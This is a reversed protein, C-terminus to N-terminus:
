FAVRAGLRILRPSQWATDKGYRPNPPNTFPPSQDGARSNNYVQNRNTATQVNTVNFVDLIPLVIVAGLRIPYELHLDVSYTSPMEDSSGRPVLFRRYGPRAFGYISLPRGTSFFSNLGVQLGFPLVYSGSLKAQHTRDLALRGFNNPVVDIYDFSSDLSPTSQGSDQNVFGDYSGELKSYLYSAQLFFRNAFSHKVDLQLGRFYRRGKVSECPTPKTSKPYDSFCDSNTPDAIQGLTGEGVNIVACSALSDAPVEGAIQVRPDYVDCRDEIVRGLARYIGKLGFSWHKLFEFEVGAAIEDQYTGKIGPPVYDTGFAYAFPALNSDNINDLRNETYNYAYAYVVNGLARVQLDQPIVQYYRGASAFFKSRGNKLPDWVVGIRPSWEGTLRIAANGNADLVRQEEYRLGANLTLNGAIKWSDQAFLAMNRATPSQSIGHAVEYGNCTTPDIFGFNGTSGDTKAV